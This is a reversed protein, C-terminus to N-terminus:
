KQKFGKVKTRKVKIRRQHPPRKLKVNTKVRVPKPKRIIVRKQKTSSGVAKGVGTYGSPLNGGSLYAYQGEANKGIDYNALSAIGAMTRQNTETNMNLLDGQSATPVSPNVYMNESLGKSTEYLAVDALYQRVDANSNIMQSRAAKSESDTGKPMANLLATVRDSAQPYNQLAEQGSALRVQNIHLAQKDFYPNLVDMNQSLFYSKMGPDSMGNYINLIQQTKSDPTIPLLPDPAQPHNNWYDNIGNQNYGLSKLYTNMNNEYNSNFTIKDQEYQKLWPNAQLMGPKQPDGAVLADYEMAALPKPVPRGGTDVGQGNLKFLPGAPYGSDKQNRAYDILFALSLVRQTPDNPNVETYNKLKAQDNLPDYPVLVKKGNIDMTNQPHIALYKNYENPGYNEPFASLDVGLAKAASQLNTYNGNKVDNLLNATETFNKSAESAIRVNFFSAGVKTAGGKGGTVEQATQAPSYISSIYKGIEGPVEKVARGPRNMIDYTNLIPRGLSDKNNLVNIVGQTGIAPTLNKAAVQAPTKNGEVMDYIDSPLSFIGSRIASANKGFIKKSLDDAAPYAVFMVLGAMILRDFAEAKNIISSDKSVIDRVQNAWAKLVDYHYPTFIFLNPNGIFNKLNRSGLVRAPLRYDPMVKYTERIAQEFGQGEMRRELVRQLTLMDGINFAVSHNLKLIMKGLYMPNVYGLADAVKQLVTPDKFQRDMMNVISRTLLERNTAQLASGHRLENRYLEDKKMVSVIAQVGSKVLRGYSSPILLRTLGRDFVSFAAINLPHTLPKFFIADRFLRNIIGFAKLPDNSMVKTFDDLIDATHPEFFYGQFQPADVVRWKPPKPGDGMKLAVDKFSPDLKWQNILQTARETSRTSLYDLAASVIPNKYYETNTHQEIEKATAEQIQWSKGTKDIFEGQQLQPRGVIGWTKQLSPKINLVQKTTEQEGLFQKFEKYLTPAKEKFIDPSRMWAQFLVAVKEETSHLYAKYSKTVNQPGGPVRELALARGEELHKLFKENEKIKADMQEILKTNPKAKIKEENILRQAKNIEAKLVMDNKNGFIRKGIGYKRDMQHGAEHLITDEPTAAATRIVPNEVESHGFEGGKLKVKREHAVGLDDLLKNLKDRVLPDYAEKVQTPIKIKEKGLDVAKKDIHATVRREGVSKGLANTKSKISVVIRQKGDTIVKYVRSKDSPASQTLPGVEDVRGKEGTWTRELSTGKNKAIRHMYSNALDDLGMRRNSRARADRLPKVFKDYIYQQQSTLKEAPNEAYHFVAEMDEPKFDPVHKILQYVMLHDATVNGSIKNLNEQLDKGFNVNNDSEKINNIINQIAGERKDSLTQQVKNVVADKAGKGAMGLVEGGVGLAAGVPYAMAAQKAIEGYGKNEKAAGIGAFASNYAGGTLAGGAVKTGINTATKIAAQSVANGTLKTIASEAPKILTKTIIPKALAEAGSTLPGGVFLSAIEADNLLQTKPDYPNSKGNDTAWNYVNNVTPNSKVLEQPTMGKTQPLGTAGETASVGFNTIGAVPGSGIAIANAVADKAISGIGNTIPNHTIDHILRGVTWVDQVGQNSGIPQTNQPQFAPQTNQPQFVPKINLPNSVNGINVNQSFQTPQLPVPTGFPNSSDLPKRPFM